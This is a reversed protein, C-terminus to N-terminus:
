RLLQDFEQAAEHLKGQPESLSWEYWQQGFPLDVFWCLAQVQPNGSVEALANSLWGKPYNELPTREQEPHFTNTATIYVPRNATSPYRNIITLWDRYVRFGRQAKGSQALYLDNLPEKAPDASREPWGATSLAFGDPAVNIQQQHKLRITQDLLVLLSNFYNLWPQNLPDSWAGDAETSWPRVPGVLLKLQPNLGRMTEIVNDHREVAVGYGVLIRAVWAPTLPAQSLSNEGLSNYGNGISYGYVAQLRQDHALRQCFRLFIALATEDDNPPLSQGQDYAVRIIVRLGAKHAAAVRSALADVSWQSEDARLAYVLDVSWAARGHWDREPNAFMAGLLTSQRSTPTPEPQGLMLSGREQCGRDCDHYFRIDAQTLNSNTTSWRWTWPESGAAFQQDRQLSTGDLTLAVYVWPQNDRVYIWQQDQADREFWIQPWGAQQNTQLVLNGDIPLLWYIISGLVLLSLWRLKTM